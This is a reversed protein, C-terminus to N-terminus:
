KNKAQQFARNLEDSLEALRSDGDGDNLENIFDNYAKELETDSKKIIQKKSRRVLM